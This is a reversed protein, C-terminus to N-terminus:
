ILNVEKLSYKKGLYDVGNEDFVPYEVKTAKSKLNEVVIDGFTEWIFIKSKTSFYRYYIDIVYDCTKRADSCISTIKNEYEEILTTIEQAYCEIDDTPTFMIDTEVSKREAIIGAHRKHFEKIISKLQNYLEKDDLDYNGSMLVKYDFPQGQKKWKNDFETDEVYEALINMICRNKLLPSFRNYQYLFKSEESTKNKKRMLETLDCKFMVRCLQKYNRKSVNYHTMIKPYVYGFFYPKKDACIRNNFAIEQNKLIAARKEEEPMDETISVYKQKKNWYKPPPVFVDGKASDIASGQYFRLLSIRKKIEKYENSDEPYNALMAILSSAINTIFGIKTNFSKTDMTAFNNASIRQEKAKKKEYTITPQNDIVANVVYKNDTVLFLDGDYM